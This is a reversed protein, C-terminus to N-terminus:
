SWKKKSKRRRHPPLAMCIDQVADNLLLREIELAFREAEQYSSFFRERILGGDDRWEVRFSMNALHKAWGPNSFLINAM